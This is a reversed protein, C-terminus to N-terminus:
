LLDVHVVVALIHCKDSLLRLQEVQGHSVVDCISEFLLWALYTGASELSQKIPSVNALALNLPRGLLGTRSWENGLEWRAKLRHNALTATLQTTPLSLTDGNRSCKSPLVFDLDHQKILNTSRQQNVRTSSVRQREAWSRM